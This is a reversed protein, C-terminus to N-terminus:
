IKKHGTTTNITKPANNSQRRTKQRIMDALKPLLRRIPYFPSVKIGNKHFARMINKNGRIINRLKGNSEGGERMIVLCHPIYINRINHREILRLMLEFDASVAFSTDFAGHQLLLGRKAYFTPHAPHWGRLFAGPTHQSGQWRRTVTSTDDHKVYVLDGYVCDTDHEMFATNIRDLVTEDAYFDDSNLIGIIDGTAHAIGRNMADYLGNDKESYIKLRGSFREEYEHAINLTADRSMGDQIIVEYDHYTQSLISDLTDSLTQASNYTATIISIKM